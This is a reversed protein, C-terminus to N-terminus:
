PEPMTDSYDSGHILLRKPYRNSVEVNQVWLHWGTDNDDIGIECNGLEKRMEQLTFILSDLDKIYESM